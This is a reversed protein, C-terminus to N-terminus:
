AADEEPAIQGRREMLRPTGVERNFNHKRPFDKPRLKRGLRQELCGICLCGGLVEMGAAKWVSPRVFYAESRDNIQVSVSDPNIALAGAAEKAAFAREADARNLLGPATNVGCDICRWSEPFLGPEIPRFSRATDDTM